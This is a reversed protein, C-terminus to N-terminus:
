SPADYCDLWWRNNKTLVEKLIIIWVMNWFCWGKTECFFCIELITHRVQMIGVNKDSMLKYHLTTTTQKDTMDSWNTTDWIILNFNIGINCNISHINWRFIKLLNHQYYTPDTTFRHFCASFNQLHIIPGSRSCVWWWWEHFRTSDHLIVLIHGGMNFQLCQHALEVTEPSVTLIYIFVLCMKLYPSGVKVNKSGRKWQLIYNIKNTPVSALKVFNCLLLKTSFQANM